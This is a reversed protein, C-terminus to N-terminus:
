LELRYPKDLFKFAKIGEIKRILPLMEKIYTIPAVEKPIFKIRIISKEVGEQKFEKRRPDAVVTVVTVGDIARLINLVEKTLNRTADYILRAHVSYVDTELNKRETETVLQM